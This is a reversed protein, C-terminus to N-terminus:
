RFGKRGVPKIRFDYRLAKTTESYNGYGAYVRKVLLKQVTLIHAEYINIDCSKSITEDDKGM